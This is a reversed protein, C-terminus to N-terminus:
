QEACGQIAKGNAIYFVDTTIPYTHRRCFDHDKKTKTTKEKKKKAPPYILHQGRSFGCDRAKLWASEKHGLTYLAEYWSFGIFEPAPM